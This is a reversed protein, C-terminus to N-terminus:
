SVGLCGHVALFHTAGRVARTIQFICDLLNDIEFDLVRLGPFVRSYHREVLINGM